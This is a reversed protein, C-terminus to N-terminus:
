VFERIEKVPENAEGVTALPRESPRTTESVSGVVTKQSVAEQPPPRYPPPPDVQMSPANKANGLEVDAQGATRNKVPRKMEQAKGKLVRRRVLIAYIMLWISFFVQCAVFIGGFIDLASFILAMSVVGLVVTVISGCQYDYSRLRFKSFMNISAIIIFTIVLGLVMTIAMSARGYTSM